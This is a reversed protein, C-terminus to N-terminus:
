AAAVHGALPVSDLEPLAWHSWTEKGLSCSSGQDVWSALPMAIHALSGVDDAFVASLPAALSVFAASANSGNPVHLPHDTVAYVDWMFDSSVGKTGLEPANSTSLLPEGDWTFISPTLQQEWAPEVDIVHVGDGNMTTRGSERLQTMAAIGM